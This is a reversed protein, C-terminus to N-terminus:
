VRRLSMNNSRQYLLIVLARGNVVRVLLYRLLIPLYSSPRYFLLEYVQLTKTGGFCSEASAALM